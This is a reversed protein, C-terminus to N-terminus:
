YFIKPMYDDDILILNKGKACRLGRNRKIANSNEKILIYKLKINKKISLKKFNNFNIKKNGIVIIEIKIKKEIQDILKNLLDKLKENRKYTPIIISILYKPDFKQIM